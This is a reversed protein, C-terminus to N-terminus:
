LGKNTTMVLEYFCIQIETEKDKFNIQPLMKLQEIIQDQKPSSKSSLQLNVASGNISKFEM